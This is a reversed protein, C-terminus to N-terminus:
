APRPSRRIACSRPRSRSRGSGTTPSRSSRTPAAPSGSTATRTSTPPTASTTAARSRRGTTRSSVARARGLDHRDARPVPAQDAHDGERGRRAAQRGPRRRRGRDRATRCGGFGAQDPAPRLRVPQRLDARRDRDAVHPRHRSHPRRVGLAPAVGLGAREAGRRGLLVARPQEPRPAKPVDEGYRMLLRIATPSTFVGTVREREIIAWPTNPIRSTSRARTPSRRRAPSSRRSSSTATASSGASTPRPGGRRAPACGSCGTAWRRSTSRTAATRTSPSSRSRPRARRPSSSPPIRPPPTPSPARSAKARPSCTTGRCSARGRRGALGARAPARGRARRRETGRRDRRRRDGAPGRGQGQPVHRGDDPGAALREGPHPRGARGRRLRRVRRLPHGRDPRDRADRHDGRGVDAHLDHAPRGERHRPRAPRGRGARGRRAARRLDAGPARWTRGAHDARHDIGSGGGRPPRARQPSTPGGAPSGPSRRRSGCSLPETPLDRGTSAVRRRWGSARGSRRPLPPVARRVQSACRRPCRRDDTECYTPMPLPSDLGGM